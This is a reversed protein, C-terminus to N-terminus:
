NIGDPLVRQYVLVNTGIAEHAYSHAFKRPGSKRMCSLEDCM